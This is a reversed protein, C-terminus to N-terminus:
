HITEGPRSPFPPEDPNIITKTAGPKKGAKFCAACLVKTPDRPKAQLGTVTTGCSACTYRAGFQEAESEQKQEKPKTFEGKQQEMTEIEDLLDDSSQDGEAPGAGEGADEKFKVRKNLSEIIKKAEELSLEGMSKQKIHIVWGEIEQMTTGLKKALTEITSIQGANIGGTRQTSPPATTSSGEEQADNDEDGTMIGFANCFSYRKGFTMRAGYKQVDSMFQESGIPIKFGTKKSHGLFHTVICIINTFEADKEEDFAYSLGNNALPTKVQEVISDLPAYKYRIKRKEEPLHEQGKEYIKKKKEIVPCEAQFKAMAADFAEKARDAKVARALGILKEITEASMGGSIAQFIMAEATQEDKIVPLAPPQHVIVEAKAVKKDKAM